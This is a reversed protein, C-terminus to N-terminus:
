ESNRSSGLFSFCSHAERKDRESINALSDQLMITDAIVV